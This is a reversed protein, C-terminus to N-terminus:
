SALLQELRLGVRKAQASLGAILEILRDLAILDAAPLRDKMGLLKVTAEDRRQRSSYELNILEGIMTQVLVAEHGRFRSQLLEDLKEMTSTLRMVVEVARLLHIRIEDQLAAPIAITTLAILRAIESARQALECQAHLLGLIDGRPIPMFLTNPLHLCIDRAVRESEQNLERVHLETSAATAWDEDLASRLMPVLLQVAEHVQSFQNQLQKFPSRAILGCLAKEPM